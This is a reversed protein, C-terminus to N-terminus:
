EAPPPAGVVSGGGPPPPPLATYKWTVPRHEEEAKSLWVTTGDARQIYLKDGIFHQLSTKLFTRAWVTRTVVQDVGDALALNTEEYSLYGFGDESFQLQFRKTADSPLAIIEGTGHHVLWQQDGRSVLRLQDKHPAEM